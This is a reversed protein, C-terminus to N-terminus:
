SFTPFPYLRFRTETDDMTQKMSSCLEQASVLMQLLNNVSEKAEPSDKEQINLVAQFQATNRLLQLNKERAQGGLNELRPQMEYIITNRAYIM